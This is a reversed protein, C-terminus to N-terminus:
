QAGDPGAPGGIVAIRRGNGHIPLAHQANKLLVAGGEAAELATAKEQVNDVVAAAAQPEPAVPDDFVGVAFLSRMLRFVMDNLRRMSVKHQQVATKLADSFHSGSGIDQEQDLGSNAARVTSHTAGWDSMVWGPFGFQGKLVHKLLYANECGYAGNVRNYSCMVSAVHAQNVAAQYAPLHIEERTREDADSSHSMRTTAQDNLAYHKVTAAVHQSQIGEIEAAGTQGSLYPDEGAYEFNRGNLPTRAIDVGPALQVNIGKHRAEWGIAAGVRRQMAPDWSAAQTIGDPFATTGLMGDGVGAGADNFVLEPVCLEPIAPISNAAGYHQFDGRGYLESIKQDLTMAKVLERARVDASKHRDMWPCAAARATAGAGPLLAPTLVGAALGAILSLRVVPSSRM